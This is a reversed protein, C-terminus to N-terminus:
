LGWNVPRSTRRTSIVSATATADVSLADFPGNRGAEFKDHHARDPTFAVQLVNRYVDNTDARRSLEFARDRM